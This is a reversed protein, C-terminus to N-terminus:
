TGRAELSYNAKKPVPAVSEPGGRIPPHQGLKFTKVCPVGPYKQQRARLMMYFRAMPSAASYPGIAGIILPPAM